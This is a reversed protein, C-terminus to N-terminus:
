RRLSALYEEKTVSQMIEIEKDYDSIQIHYIITLEILIKHRINMGLFCVKKKLKIQHIFRAIRYIINM